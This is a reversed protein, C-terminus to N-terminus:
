IIFACFNWTMQAACHITDLNVRIGPCIKWFLNRFGNHLIRMTYIVTICFYTRLNTRVLRTQQAQTRNSFNNGM